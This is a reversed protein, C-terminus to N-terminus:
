QNCVTTPILDNERQAVEQKQKWSLMAKQDPASDPPVYNLMCGLPKNLFRPVVTPMKNGQITPAQVRQLRLSKLLDNNSFNLQRGLLRVRQNYQWRTFYKKLHDVTKPYITSNLLSRRLFECAIKNWDGVGPNRGEKFINTLQSSYLRYEAQNSVPIPAVSVALKRSLYAHDRPLSASAVEAFTVHNPDLPLPRLGVLTSNSTPQFDLLNTHTPWPYIGFSHLIWHQTKDVIDHRDTGFDPEGYRGIGITINFRFSRLVLLNDAQEIGTSCLGVLDSYKQHLTENLNTGLDTTYINLGDSDISHLRYVDMDFPLYYIGKKANAIFTDFWTELQDTWYEKLNGDFKM